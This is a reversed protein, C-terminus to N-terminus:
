RGERAHQEDLYRMLARFMVRGNGSFAEGPM